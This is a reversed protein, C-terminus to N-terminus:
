GPLAWEAIQHALDLMTRADLGSALHAHIGRLTLNPNSVLLRACENLADEDMGFPGSM